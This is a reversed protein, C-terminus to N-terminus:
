RVVEEWLHEWFGFEGYNKEACKSDKDKDDFLKGLISATDMLASSSTPMAAFCPASKTKPLEDAFLGDEPAYKAMYLDSLERMLDDVIEPQNYVSQCLLRNEAKTISNDVIKKLLHTPVEEDCNDIFSMSNNLITKKMQQGIRKYRMDVYDATAEVINGTNNKLVVEDAQWRYNLLEAIEKSRHNNYKMVLILREDIALSSIASFILAMKIRVDIIASLDVSYPVDIKNKEDDLSVFNVDSAGEKTKNLNQYCQHSVVSNLWTGFTSDWSFSRLPAWDSNKGKLNVFLDNRIDDLNSHNGFYYLCKKRILPDYKKYILYWAANEDSQDALIRELLQKDDMTDYVQHLKNSPVNSEKM